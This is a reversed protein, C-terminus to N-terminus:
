VHKKKFLVNLSEPALNFKRPFRTIGCNRKCHSNGKFCVQDLYELLCVEEGTTLKVNVNLTARDVRHECVYRVKNYWQRSFTNVHDHIPINSIFGIGMVMNDENNLEIVIIKKVTSSIRRPSYYSYRNNILSQRAWENWTTKNFRTTALM